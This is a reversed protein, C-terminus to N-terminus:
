LELVEDGESVPAELLPAAPLEAPDGPQPPPAPPAGSGPPRAPPAASGPPPAPGGLFREICGDRARVRHAHTIEADGERTPFGVEVYFYPDSGAWLPEAARVDFREIRFPSAVAQSRSIFERAASQSRVDRECLHTLAADVDGAVYATYFSIVVRRAAGDSAAALETVAPPPPRECGVALVFLLLLPLHRVGGDHCVSRLAKM